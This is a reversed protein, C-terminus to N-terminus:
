YCTLFPSSVCLCLPFAMHRRQVSQLSADALWPIGLTVQLWWLGPLPMSCIRGRLRRFSSVRGVGQNQIEQSGFESCIFKEQKLGGLIKYNAVACRPCSSFEANVERSTNRQGYKRMLKPAGSNVYVVWRTVKLKVGM